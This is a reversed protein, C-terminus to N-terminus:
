KVVDVVEVVAEAIEEVVVEATVEAAVVEAIEAVVAEATVEAAVEATMEAEAAVITVVIMEAIEVPEKQQQSHHSNANKCSKVKLSGCKSASKVM